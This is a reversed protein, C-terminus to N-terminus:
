LGPPRSRPPEGSEARKWLEPPHLRYHLRELFSAALVGESDIPEWSAADPDSPAEDNTNRETEEIAEVRRRSGDEHIRVRLRHRRGFTHMSSAMPSLRVLWATDIEGAEPASRAIRWEGRLLELAQAHIFERSHAYSEPSSGTAPRPSSACAALAPLLLLFGLDRPPKM